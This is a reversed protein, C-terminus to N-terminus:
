HRLDTDNHRRQKARARGEVVPNVAELHSPNATLSLHVIGGDTSLHDSSFGKHYKVDGDGGYQDPLVNDEFESFIMAYSKDFITALVNLRGRHPMGMVIERLGAKPADEVIAHIAPILSEAGELSFRKQAPYRLGLFSEFVEADTLIELIERQKPPPFLPRNRISEMKEQLWRRVTVDQIHIYEVGISRCYTERLHQLIDRLTARQAAGFLHGTDFVRDLDVEELNFASLELWSFTLLREGLPDTHALRHGQSRYAFILSAVQSQAQAQDGSVCSRPCEALEFGKFFAQWELSLSGPAEKWSAYMAEFYDSTLPLAGPSISNIASSQSM